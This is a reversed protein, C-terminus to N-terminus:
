LANVIRERDYADYLAEFCDECWECQRIPPQEPDISPIWGNDLKVDSIREIARATSETMSYLEHKKREEFKITKGKSTVGERYVRKGCL